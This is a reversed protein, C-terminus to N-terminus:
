LPIVPAKCASYLALVGEGGDMAWSWGIRRNAHAASSGSATALQYCRTHPAPTVICVLM